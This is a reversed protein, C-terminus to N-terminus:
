TSPSCSLFTFSSLFLFFCHFNHACSHPSSVSLSSSSSSPSSSSTISSSSVTASSISHSLRSFSSASVPMPEDKCADPGKGNWQPSPVDLSVNSAPRESSAGLFRHLRSM